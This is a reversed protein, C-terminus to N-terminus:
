DKGAKVKYMAPNIKDVVRLTLKGISDSYRIYHMKLSDKKEAGLGPMELSDSVRLIGSKLNSFATDVAPDQQSSVYVSLDELVEEQRKKVGRLAGDGNHFHVISDTLLDNVQSATLASIARESNKLRRQQDSLANKKYSTSMVTFAGVSLTMVICIMMYRNIMRLILPEPPKTGIVKLILRYALYMLLFGLGSLGVGLIKVIDFNGM